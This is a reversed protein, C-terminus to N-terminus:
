KGRLKTFNRPAQPPRRSDDKQMDMPACRPAELSGRMTGKTDRQTLNAVDLAVKEPHCKDTVIPGAGTSSLASPDLVM